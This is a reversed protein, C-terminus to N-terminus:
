NNQMHEGHGSTNCMERETAAMRQYPGPVDSVLMEAASIIRLEQHKIIIIWTFSGLSLERKDLKPGM